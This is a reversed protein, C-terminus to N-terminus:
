AEPKEDLDYEPLDKIGLGMFTFHHQIVYNPEDYEALIFPSQSEVVTFCWAGQYFGRSNQKWEAVGGWARPFRTDILLEDVDPLANRIVVYGYSVFPREAFTLDFEYADPFSV